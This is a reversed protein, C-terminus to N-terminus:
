PFSCSVSGCFRVRATCSCFPVGWDRCAEYVPRLLSEQVEPALVFEGPRRALEPLSNAYFYEGLCDWAWQGVDPTLVMAKSIVMTAGVRVAQEVVARIDEETQGPGREDLKPVIPDLRLRVMQDRRVLERMVSLREMAPPALTHFIGPDDPGARLSPVTVEVVSPVKRLSILYEEALLPAPNQTMVILPFGSAALQRLAEATYGTKGEWPQFPDTSCAVMVAYRKLGLEKALEIDQALYRVRSRYAQAKHSVFCFRCGFACGEFVNLRLRFPCEPGFRDYVRLSEGSCEEEFRELPPPFQGSTNM